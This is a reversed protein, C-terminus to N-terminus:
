NEERIERIHMEMRRVMEVMGQKVKMGDITDDVKECYLKLLEM